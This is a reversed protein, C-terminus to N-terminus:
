SLYLYYEFLFLIKRFLSNLIFQNFLKHLEMASANSGPFLNKMVGSQCPFFM